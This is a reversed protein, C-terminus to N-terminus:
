KLFIKETHQEGNCEIVLYYLGKNLGSFDMTKIYDIKDVMLNESMMTQGLFNLVELKCETNNYNRLNLNFVGQSPNPFLEVTANATKISLIKSPYSAEGNFDMQRLRYYNNGKDPNLDTFTYEQQVLSNGNGKVSGISIYDAGNESREVEFHDNNTETATLWSLKVQNGEQRGNFSILQVPLAINTMSGFHKFYLCHLRTVNSATMYTGVKIPIMSINRYTIEAMAATASTDIAPFGTTTGLINFFSDTSFTQSTVPATSYRNINQTSVKEAYTGAGDNDIISISLCSYYYSSSDSAYRFDFILKVWGPDSATSTTVSSPQVANPFSAVDDDFISLSGNHQAAIKVYCNVGADVNSYKYVAGVTLATGSILSATKLILPQTTCPQSLSSLTCALATLCILLHKM